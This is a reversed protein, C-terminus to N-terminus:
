IRQWEKRKGETKGLMLTKELSDDRQILHGFYQLKLKLLLGKLSYGPNIEKISQNSRRATWPPWPRPLLALAPASHPCSHMSSDDQCTLQLAPQRQEPGPLSYTTYTNKLLLTTYVQPPNM